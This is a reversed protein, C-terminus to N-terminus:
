PREAITELRKGRAPAYPVLAALVAMTVGEGLESNGAQSDAPIEIAFGRQLADTATSMLQVETACGTLVLTDVALEDLVTGLTTNYFGSYSPKTVIRDSPMPALPPWVEAGESGEVAHTGWEDLEPDGPEHRDLVYVVPIGSARADAIRRALAEVIARARPVELRCGPTLHDRIMDCVLLARRERRAWRERLTELVRDRLRSSPDAPELAVGLTAIANAVAGVAARQNAPWQAVALDSLREPRGALVFELLDALATEDGM